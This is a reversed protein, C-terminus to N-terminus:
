LKEAIIFYVAGVEPHQSRENKLLELQEETLAAFNGWKPKTKPNRFLSDFELMKLGAESFAHELDSKEFLNLKLRFNEIRTNKVNKGNNDWISAVSLIALGGKRLVRAMEKTAAEYDCMNLVMLMCLATDFSEDPFPLKEASSASLCLSPNEAAKRLMGSSVDIGFLGKQSKKSLYNLHFGNGCGIDLVKGAAHEDILGTEKARVIGTWPNEQRLDYRHATKNYLQQAVRM